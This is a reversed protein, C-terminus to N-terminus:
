IWGLPDLRLRQWIAFCCQLLARPHVELASPVIWGVGEWIARTSSACYQMDHFATQGNWPWLRSGIRCASLRAPLVTDDVGLVQCLGGFTVDLGKHRMFRASVLRDIGGVYEEFEEQRLPGVFEVPMQVDHVCDAMHSGSFRIIRSSAMAKMRTCDHMARLSVEAGKSSFSSSAAHGVFICPFWSLMVSELERVNSVHLKAREVCQVQAAAASHWSRLAIHGFQRRLKRKGLVGYTCGCRLAYFAARLELRGVVQKGVDAVHLFLGTQKHQDWGLRLGGAFAKTENSGRSRLHLLALATKSPAREIPVCHFRSTFSAQPVM